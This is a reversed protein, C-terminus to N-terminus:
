LNPISLYAKRLVDDLPKLRMKSKIRKLHPMFRQKLWMFKVRISPDKSHLGKEIINRLVLLYHPYGYEPDDLGSQAGTIYNIYYMGDYDLSLLSMISEREHKKLHHKSHALTGINIISKDLIVRPYLAANKELRYADIFAPGFLMKDTHILKGKSIAGRCLMGFFVLNIQVFLIELLTHFVGSEERLPFSIVISDSFQTVEKHELEDLDDIGILYRIIEFADAINKIYEKNDSGDQLITDKIHDAFGLIDLFCVVRDEYRM